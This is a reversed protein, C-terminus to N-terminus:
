LGIQSQSVFTGPTSSQNKYWVASTSDSTVLDPLGDNNMDGIVISSPQGLGEYTTVALFTGPNAPDQMLTAVTGTGEPYLGCMAIDPLGDGNLDGVALSIVGSYAPYVVPTAFTGPAASNQLIVMAGETAEDADVSSNGGLGQAAIVIDPYGDQNLDAIRIQSPEGLATITTPTSVFTGPNGPDQFFIFVMGNDGGYGPNNEYGDFSTVAIDPLGDGNLDGVAVSIGRTFWGPGEAVIAPNSITLTVPSQFTGPSAPNQLLYEVAGKDDAVILDPLGDGNLDAIQVDNPHSGAPLTITTPANYTGSTPSSEMMVSLTGANFNAVVMDKSGTGTLDGVALGSPPASSTAYNAIGAFTGPSSPNNMIVGLLGPKQTLGTEDIQASVVAVDLVGNGKLDAVVVSNPVTIIAGTDSGCSAVLLVPLLALLRAAPHRLVSRSM